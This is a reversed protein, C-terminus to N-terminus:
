VWKSVLLRLILLVIEPVMARLIIIVFIAIMM